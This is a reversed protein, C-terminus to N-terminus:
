IQLSCRLHSRQKQSSRRLILLQGQSGGCVGEGIEYHDLCDIFRFRPLQSYFDDHKPDLAESFSSVAGNPHITAWPNRLQEGKGKSLASLLADLRHTKTPPIHPCTHCLANVPLMDPAAHVYCLTSQKAAKAEALAFFM